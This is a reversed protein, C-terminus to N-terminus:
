KRWKYTIITGFDKLLTSFVSTNSLSWHSDSVVVLNNFVDPHLCKIVHLLHVFDRESSKDHIISGGKSEVYLPAVLKESKVCFDVKWTWAKFPAKAPLITLKKQREIRNKDFYKLLELYTKFEFTSDWHELDDVAPLNKSGYFSRQLSPSYWFPKVKQFVTKTSKGPM